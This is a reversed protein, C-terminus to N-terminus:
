IASELAKPIALGPNNLVLIDKNIAEGLENGDLVIIIRNITEGQVNINLV